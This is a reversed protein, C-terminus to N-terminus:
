GHCRARARQPQLKAHDVPFRRLYRGFRAQRDDHVAARGDFVAAGAASAHGASVNPLDGVIAMVAVRQDSKPGKDITRRESHAEFKGDRCIPCESSKDKPSNRLRPSSKHSSRTAM